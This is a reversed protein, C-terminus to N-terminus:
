FMPSVPRWVCISSSAPSCTGPTVSHLVLLYANVCHIVPDPECLPDVCRSLNWIDVGDSCNASWRPAYLVHSYSTINDQKEPRQPYEQLTPCSSM